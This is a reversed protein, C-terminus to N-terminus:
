AADTQGAGTSTGGSKREYDEAKEVYKGEPTKILFNRAEGTDTEAERWNAQSDATLFGCQFRLLYGDGSACLGGRDFIQVLEM